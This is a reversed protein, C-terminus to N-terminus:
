YFIMSDLLFYMQKIDVPKSLHADMGAEFSKKVDEEFVNATMAVIPIRESDPHNSRRIKKTATLGDMVPMRIDMLIVDYYGPEHSLFQKLGDEGNMATDVEFNKHTLINKTIDINIENDEVLLVRKGSFDYDLNLSKSQKRQNEECEEVKELTLTVIFTTGKGKESYVDIRGGMIDIINKSISLGLGTGGYLTTIGNDEQEFAEFLYPLFKEDMGIGTDRIEFRIVADKATEKLLEAILEVRGETQTFKVANQLINLLAKKLKESDFRYEEGFKGRMEMTFCIHKEHAMAGSTRKLEEMFKQFDTEEQNLAVNGSEIQSLNLIDDVFSLLFHASMEIKDLNEQVQKVKEVNERSLYALGIISNMPTRIEHSMRMLFEGKAQNAERAEALADYLKEKQRQDEAYNETIDHRVFVIYNRDKKFYRINLKKRRYIDGLLLRYEIMIKEKCELEGKIYSLELCERCLSRDKPHVYRPIFEEVIKIYNGTIPSLVETDKNTVITSLVETKVNVYAAFDMEERIVESMIEHWKETDIRNEEM